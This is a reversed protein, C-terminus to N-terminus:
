PFLAASISLRTELPDQIYGKYAESKWRGHQQILRDPVGAMAAATCGGHRLSHASFDAAHEGIREFWVRLRATVASKALPTSSLQGSLLAAPFLPGNGPPLIASLRHLWRVPCLLSTLKAVLWVSVPLASTKSRRVSLVVFGQGFSLDERLLSVAESRRLFGFFSVLFMTMDRVQVPSSLEAAAVFSALHRVLVPVKRRASYPLLRAIGQRLSALQFDESLDLQGETLELLVRRLGSIYVSITPPAM